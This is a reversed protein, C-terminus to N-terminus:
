QRENTEAKVVYRGALNAALLTDEVIDAIDDPNMSAHAKELRKRIDEYSEGSSLAELVADLDPALAKVARDRAESAMRDAFLQGAIPARRALRRTVSLRTTETGTPTVAPQDDVPSSEPNEHETEPMYPLTGDPMPSMAQQPALLRDGDELPPLDPNLMARAENVTVVGSTSALSAVAGAKTSMTDAALKQDEPPATVWGICPSVADGQPYHFRCYPKAVDRELVASRGREDFEILDQKVNSHIKGLAYSGGNNETTLNQGNTRVAIKTETKTLLSEFGASAGSNDPWETELDYDQDPTAGKQCLVTPNSGMNSVSRLFRKKDEIKANGPVKAKRIGKSYQESWTVWDRWGFRRALWPEALSRVLGHMWGYSEGFPTYLLWQGTGPKVEILGDLSTM